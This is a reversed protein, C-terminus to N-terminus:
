SVKITLDTQEDTAMDGRYVKLETGTSILSAITEVMVKMMLIPILILILILM